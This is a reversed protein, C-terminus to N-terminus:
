ARDGMLVWFDLLYQVARVVSWQSKTTLTTSSVVQATGAGAILLLAAGAGAQLWQLETGLPYAVLSNPPIFGTAAITGTYVIYGKEDGPLATDVTGAFPRFGSSGNMARQLDQQQTTLSTLTQGLDGTTVTRGM